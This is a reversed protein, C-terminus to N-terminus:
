SSSVEDDRESANNENKTNFEESELPDENNVFRRKVKTRLFRIM